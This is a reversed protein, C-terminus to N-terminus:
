RSSWRSFFGTPIVYSRMQNRIWELDIERYGMFPRAAMKRTGDNLYRAIEGLSPYSKLFSLKGPGAQVIVECGAIARSADGMPIRPPGKGKRRALTSPMLPAVLRSSGPSIGARLVARNGELLRQRIPGALPGLDGCRKAMDQCRESLKAM